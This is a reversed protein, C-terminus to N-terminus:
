FLSIYNSLCVEHKLAVTEEQLHTSVAKLRDREENTKRIQEMWQKEQDAFRGAAGERDKREQNFDSQFQDIQFSYLLVCIRLRVNVFYKSYVFGVVSNCEEGVCIHVVCCHFFCMCLFESPNFYM